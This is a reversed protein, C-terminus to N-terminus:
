PRLRDGFDMWHATALWGCDVPISAGTIASAEASMLFSVAAAVEGPRVLRGLASSREIVSVDREGSAARATLEATATFGPAVANVRIGLGGLEGAALRTAAELAAKAPAYDHLPLQRHGNVSTINVVSGGATMLPVLVRTCTVAGGYNVKWIAESRAPDPALMPTVNQLVGAVNVLGFVGKGGAALDDALSQVAKANTVDLQVLSPAPRLDTAVVDWGDNRLRDTVAAGIGGAAGTVVVVGHETM